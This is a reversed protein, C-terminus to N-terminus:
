IFFYFSKYDSLLSIQAPRNHPLCFTVADNWYLKTERGERCRLCVLGCHVKLLNSEEATLQSVSSASPRDIYPSILNTM